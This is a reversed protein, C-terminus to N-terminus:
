KDFVRRWGEQSLEWKKSCDICVWIGTEADEMLSKGCSPCGPM